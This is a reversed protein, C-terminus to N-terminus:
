RSESPPAEQLPVKTLPTSEPRPRSKLLQQDAARRGCRPAAVVGAQGAPRVAAKSARADGLRLSHHQKTGFAPRPVLRAHQGQRQEVVLGLTKAAHVTGVQVHDRPARSAPAAGAQTQGTRPQRRPRREERAAPDVRHQGARGGLAHVVHRAQTQQPAKAADARTGHTMVRRGSGDLARRSPARRPAARTRWPTTAATSPRTPPAAGPM